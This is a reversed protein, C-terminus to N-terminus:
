ILKMMGLDDIQQKNLDYEAYRDIILDDVDALFTLTPVLFVWIKSKELIHQLIILASLKIIKKLQLIIRAPLLSPPISISTFDSSPREIVFKFVTEPIM